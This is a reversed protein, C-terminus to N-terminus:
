SDLILIYFLEVFKLTFVSFLSQFGTDSSKFEKTGGVECTRCLKNCGLGGHSCEEAQMPNDGAWLLGYPVLLVEENYLCDWAVIGTNGVRSCCSFKTSKYGFVILLEYKLCQKLAQMLEMPSANPLSSVFRICFEKELMERPMNANSMYVVYHKNWQKSINGSVDDMFIILPVSYVMRDGAKARLPHPM